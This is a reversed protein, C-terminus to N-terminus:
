EPISPAPEEEKEKLDAMSSEPDAGTIEGKIFGNFVSALNLTAGKIAELTVSAKFVKKFQEACNMVNGIAAVALKLAETRSIEDPDRFGGASAIKERPTYSQGSQTHAQSQASPQPASPASQAPGEIKVSTLNYYTKGDRERRVFVCDLLDGSRAQGLVQCIESQNKFYWDSREKGTEPNTTVLINSRENGSKNEKFILKM